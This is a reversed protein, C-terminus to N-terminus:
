EDTERRLGVLFHELMQDALQLVCENWNILILLLMPNRLPVERERILKKTLQNLLKPFRFQLSRVKQVQELWEPQFQNATIVRLLLQFDDTELRAEEILDM